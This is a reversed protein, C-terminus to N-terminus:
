EDAIAETILDVLLLARRASHRDTRATPSHGAVRTKRAAHESLAARVHYWEEATLSINYLRDGHINVVDCHKEREAIAAWLAAMRGFTVMSRDDMSADPTDTARCDLAAQHMVSATLSVQTQDLPISHQSATNAM